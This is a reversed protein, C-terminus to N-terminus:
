GSKRPRGNNYPREPVPLGRMQYWRRYIYWVNGSNVKYGEEQLKAATERYSLRDIDVDMLQHVRDTLADLKPPKRLWVSVEEPLRGDTADHVEVAAKVTHLLQPTFVGRVNTRKRGPRREVHVMIRGGTLQRFIRAAKYVADTGLKGSAADELLTTFSGLIQAIAEPTIAKAGGGLGKELRTLEMQLTAREVTAANITMGDRICEYHQKILKAVEAIVQPITRPLKRNTLPAGPVEVCRYGVTLAGTTYGQEFLSKLGARCHDAITDLLMEDMMGHLYMLAKWTKEDRTDIGQSTSVARLGEEVVEENVFQFSKYGTRLLRSVKFVLLTQAQRDHLIAKARNLGDRRVRRGKEAEDVCIFEPPVYMKHHGAYEVTHQVQARTSHQLKSSFRSLVVAIELGAQIAWAIREALPAQPDFGTLDIGAKKATEIWWQHATAALEEDAGGVTMPDPDGEQDADKRRTWVAICGAQTIPAPFAAHSGFLKVQTWVLALVVVVTVIGIAIAVLGPRRPRRDYCITRARVFSPVPHYIDM